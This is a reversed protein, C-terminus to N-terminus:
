TKNETLERNLCKTVVQKFDVLSEQIPKLKLFATAWKLRNDHTIQLPQVKGLEKVIHKKTDDLVSKVMMEANVHDIM